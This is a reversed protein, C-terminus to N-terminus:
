LTPRDVILISILLLVAVGIDIFAWTERELHVPIILNFFLAITALPWVWGSKGLESARVAAFAAVGCVIWRLLTYYGYPQRGLAGFLMGAAVLKAVVVGHSKFKM